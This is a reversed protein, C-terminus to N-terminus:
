TLSDLEDYLHGSFVALPELDADEAALGAMGAQLATLALPLRHTGDTMGAGEVVGAGAVVVVPPRAM